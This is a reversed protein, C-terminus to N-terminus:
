SPPGPEVPPMSPDDEAGLVSSGPEPGGSSLLGSSLEDVGPSSPIARVRPPVGTSADLLPGSVDPPGAGRGDGPVSEGPPLGLGVRLRLVSLAAGFAVAFDLPVLDLFGRFVLPVVLFIVVGTSRGSM